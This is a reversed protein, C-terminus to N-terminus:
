RRRRDGYRTRGHRVAKSMQKESEEVPQEHRRLEIEIMEDLQAREHNRIVALEDARTLAYPYRWMMSCQDAVLAHVANVLAPKRAVWMPVEVRALHYGQDDSGVNVYFFAIEYSEGRSQRYEKNRPSRQIMIASREGPRLLRFMLQQDILGEFIGNTAVATETIESEDLGMLHVLSVVFASTPRAVYGVLSVSQEHNRAAHDHADHLHVLAAMFDSELQKGDPVENGVWFLLPGDSLALLPVGEDRRAWAERALVQLELVSRRANVASNPILQGHANRLANETYHLHPETLTEPLEDTGHHYVFIGINTLYYLAAAHQDPYVQSGDAALVCARSPTPPLPYSRNVPETFAAAGRYGVGRALDIRAHIADLDDLAQFQEWARDGRESLTLNLAALARGMREVQPIVKDFELM